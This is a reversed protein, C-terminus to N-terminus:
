LSIERHEDTARLGADLIAQADRGHLPDCLPHCTAEPHELLHLFHAGSDVRHPPLDPVSIESGEPDEGTAKFLKGGHRPELLLTGSSGYLVTTYATMKGIQTWSGETTALANPYRLILMANDDSDLDRKLARLKVGTVSDPQGLLTRALVAGYCCYDMFAGGGGNLQDDYLWECFYESCGLERPGEHAARYKVQWLQGIEGNAALHLAHQMQPWWAFPWNIVLRLNKDRATALMADAGALTSAMPKEVLCHLERQLAKVALEESLRNSAFIYAADLESETELLSDYNDYTRVGAGFDATVKEILAPHHDAAAILEAGQQRVLEQLNSWVHDHHLGLVAIKKM